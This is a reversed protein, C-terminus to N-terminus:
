DEDWADVVLIDGIPDQMSFGFEVLENKWYSWNDGYLLAIKWISDSSKVINSEVLSRLKSQFKVMPHAVQQTM